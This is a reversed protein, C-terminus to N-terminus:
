PKEADKEWGRVPGVRGVDDDSAFLPNQPEASVEEQPAYCQALDEECKFIACSGCSPEEEVSQGNALLELKAHRQGRVEELPTYGYSIAETLATSHLISVVASCHMNSPKPLLCISRIQGGLVHGGFVPKAPDSTDLDDPYDM